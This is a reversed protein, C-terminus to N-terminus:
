LRPDVHDILDQVNPEAGTHAGDAGGGTAPEGDWRAGAAEGAPAVFRALLISAEYLLYLPVTELAMTIADGPLIAAVLAALVVAYPRFKRLQRPTVFGMRTLGLIVVPVQFM